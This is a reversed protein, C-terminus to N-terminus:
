GKRVPFQLEVMCEQPQGGTEGMGKHHVERCPGVIRYGNEQMWKLLEQYAEPLKESPGSHTICAFAGKELEKGKVEGEGKVKGSIPLCVEFHAKQLDIGKADEYLLAMPTGALKVKKEKLVQSIQEFVKGMEERPGKKEVSAVKMPMLFKISIESM